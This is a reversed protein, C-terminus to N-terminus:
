GPIGSGLEPGDPAGVPGFKASAALVLVTVTPTTWPLRFPPM